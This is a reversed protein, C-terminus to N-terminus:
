IQIGSNSFIEDWNKLIFDKLEEAFDKSLVRIGMGKHDPDFIIRYDCSDVFLKIAEKIRGATSYIKEKFLTTSPQETTVEVVSSKAEDLEEDAADPEQHYEFDDTREETDENDDEELEDLDMETQGPAVDNLQATQKAPLADITVGNNKLFEKLTTERPTCSTRRYLSNTMSVFKKIEAVSDDPQIMSYVCVDLRAIETLQSYSFPLFEEKIKTPNSSDSCLSYVAMFNYTSSKGFGFRAEAYDVINDYGLERFKSSHNIVSLKYGIQFFSHKIDDLDDFLAKEIEELTATTSYAGWDSFKVERRQVIVTPAAAPLTTEEKGIM